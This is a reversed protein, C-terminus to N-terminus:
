AELETLLAKADKLDKTDFGETFWNYIPALLDRADKRKGQSSWLRALSTSTRLEWSKAQQKRAWDLSALYNREAGELDGKLSLIWGKVRLIEACYDREEWGPRAMQDLSEDIQRLAKATDGILALGEALASAWYPAELHFGSGRWEALGPELLGIGEAVKGERVLAIGRRVPAQLKSFMSLNHERGLRIAEEFRQRYNEPECRLDFVEAGTSLAYCLEFPHNRRRASAEMEDNIRVAQDPCGLMWTWHSAFVGVHMKPDRNTLRVIHRHAKEDYLALVKDGHERATLLDGLYFYSIMAGRHATVLLSPDGSREAAEFLEKVWDLSEAVRGRVLVNVRLGDLIPLLTENRGLRKALPLAAQYSAWVEAAGFGKFAMWTTGLLTQLALENTDREPSEPQDNSLELGKNLHAIAENVAMRNLALEGARKWFPIAAEALGAATLHHALLEPETDKTTPFREDIVRAIKSHLEQRRSKLLSDYAADQVLAHKFTYLADPATGRRFALGSETLQRLAEDLRSEDLPSVAAILEYSFERGIAAGIQATEKVPLFRDLRAMLSDRLTAPVPVSGPSGVYEYKQGADKLTGSELVAKTLEEVFLPV